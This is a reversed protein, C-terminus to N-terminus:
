ADYSRLLVSVLTVEPQDHPAMHRDTHINAQQILSVFTPSVLVLLSVYGGDYIQVFTVNGAGWDGASRVRGGFDGTHKTVFPLFPAHSFEEHLKHELKLM